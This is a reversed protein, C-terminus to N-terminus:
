KLKLLAFSLHGIGMTEVMDVQEIIEVVQENIM